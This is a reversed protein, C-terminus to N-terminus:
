HSQAPAQPAGSEIEDPSAARVALVRCSFNLAIGALPHNADLVVKDEALDTVRYLRPEGDDFADEVEMGLDLGEGYRGRPEVRLLEPDYDGFANPPELHVRVVEGAAKGELAQELAGPLGGHGHLYLLPEEAAHLLEGQADYLELSLSVVTDAAIAGL